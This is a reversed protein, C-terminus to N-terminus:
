PKKVSLVAAADNRSRQGTDLRRQMKALYHSRREPGMRFMREALQAVLRSSVAIEDGDKTTLAPM